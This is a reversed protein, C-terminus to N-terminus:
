VDERSTASEGSADLTEPSLDDLAGDLREGPGTDSGVHPGAAGSADSLRSRWFYLGWFLGGLVLGIVSVAVWGVGTRSAFGEVFGALILWLATGAIIQPHHM